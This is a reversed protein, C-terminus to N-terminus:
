DDDMDMRENKIISEATQNLSVKLTPKANRFIEASQCDKSLVIAYYVGYKRQLDQKIPKTGSPRFDLVLSQQIEECFYKGRKRYKDQHTTIGKGNCMLEFAWHGRTGWSGVYFDVRGGKVFYTMEASCVVSSPLLSALGAAFQQQFIAEIPLTSSSSSSKSLYGDMLSKSEFTSIIDTALRFATAPIYDNLPARRPYMLDYIVRETLPTAFSIFEKDDDIL